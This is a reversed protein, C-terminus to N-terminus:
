PITWHNHYISYVLSFDLPFPTPDDDESNRLTKWATSNQALSAYSIAKSVVVIIALEIEPHVEIEDEVKDFVEDIGESLTCEGISPIALMRRPGEVPTFKIVMDPTVAKDKLQLSINM